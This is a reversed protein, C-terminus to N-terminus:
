IQIFNFSSDSSFSLIKEITQLLFNFRERDISHSALLTEDSAQIQITGLGFINPLMYIEKM